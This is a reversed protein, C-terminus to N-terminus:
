VPARGPRMIIKNADRYACLDSANAPDRYSKPRLYGVPRSTWSAPGLTSLAHADASTPISASPGAHPGSSATCPRGRTNISPPPLLNPGPRPPSPLCHLALPRASVGNPCGTCRLLLTSPCTLTTSPLPPYFPYLRLYIFCDNPNPPGQVHRSATEGKYILCWCVAWLLRAEGCKREAIGSVNAKTAM